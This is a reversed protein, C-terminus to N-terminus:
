NVKASSAREYLASKEELVKVDTQSTLLVTLDDAYASLSVSDAGSESFTLGSLSQRLKNLLPEIALSYLM